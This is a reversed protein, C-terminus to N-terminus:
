SRSSEEAQTDVGEGPPNDESHEEGHDRHDLNDQDSRYMSNDRNNEICNEYASGYDESDRQEAERACMEEVSYADSQYIDVQAVCVTCASVTLGFFCTSWAKMRAGSFSIAFTATPRM